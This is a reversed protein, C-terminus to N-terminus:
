APRASGGALGANEAPYLVDLGGAHVAITGTELAAEHALADIGRALGSVVVFGAEGLDRALRRAMRAGLASANRTGVIALCPRALALYRGAGLPDAARRPHAGAGGSLGRRGPVPADRRAARRGEAGGGRRGRPLPRLGDRGADKAIGPLAALAAEAHGHEAMLRLYTAPGVRRSRVLRLRNLRERADPAPPPTYDLPPEAFGPDTWTM